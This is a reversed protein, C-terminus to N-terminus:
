GREAQGFYRIEVRGEYDKTEGQFQAGLARVASV